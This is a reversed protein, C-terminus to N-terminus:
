RATYPDNEPTRYTVSYTLRVISEKGDSSIDRGTQEAFLALGGFQSWENSGDHTIAYEADAAALNAVTDLPTTAADSPAVLISVDIDQKWTITGPNGHLIEVFQAEPAQEVITKFGLLGQVGRRLPREVSLTQNYGNGTTVFDLRDKIEAVIREIVPLADADTIAFQVFNSINFADGDVSGVYGVYKGITLSLNVTGNNSRSGASTFSLAGASHSWQSVYVTNTTGSSAGSITAVGGTGDGNDAVALTPANIAGGGGGGSSASGFGQSIIGATLTM